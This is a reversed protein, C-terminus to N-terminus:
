SLLIGQARVARKREILSAIADLTSFNEIVLDQRAVQIDFEKEVFLILQMVFLSNVFGSAFIDDDDRLDPNRIYKALFTRVKQKHEDM